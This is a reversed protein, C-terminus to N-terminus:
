TVPGSEGGEDHLSPVPAPFGYHYSGFRSPERVTSPRGIEGRRGFVGPGGTTGGNFRSAGRIPVGALFASVAPDSYAGYADVLTGRVGGEGEIAYVIAMDDPDSVGEFRHFERVVVDGARFARGSDFSRLEEGRVGFHEIFGSRALDEMVGALTLDGTRKM